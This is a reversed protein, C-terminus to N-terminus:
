YIFSCASELKRKSCSSSKHKSSVAFLKFPSEGINTLSMNLEEVTKEQNVINNTGSIFIFITLLNKLTMIKLALVKMSIFNKM